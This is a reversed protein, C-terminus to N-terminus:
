AGTIQIFFWYSIAVVAIMGLTQMLVNLIARNSEAAEEKFRQELARKRREHITAVSRQAKNQNASEALAQNAAYESRMDKNRYTKELQM